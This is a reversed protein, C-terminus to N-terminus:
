LLFKNNIEQLDGNQIIAGTHPPLSSISSLIIIKRTKKTESNQFQGGKIIDKDLFLLYDFATSFQKRKFSLVPDSGLAQFNFGYFIM